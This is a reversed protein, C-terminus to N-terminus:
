VYVKERLDIVSSLAEVLEEFPAPKTFFATVGLAMMKKRTAVDRCGTLVIVPISQTDSNRRLCEVIYDGDGQPMKMDTIVVDPRETMALWFGNMGHYARLVEVDYPALRISLSSSIEPDDDICLIKPCNPGLESSSLSM